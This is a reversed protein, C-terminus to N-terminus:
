PMGYMLILADVCATACAIGAVLRSGGASVEVRERM